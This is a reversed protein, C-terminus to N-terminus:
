TLPVEVLVETGHGPHSKVELRAAMQRARERMGLLGLHADGAVTSSLIDFGQGDDQVRLVVTKPQYDLEIRIAGARSHKVSNTIAEQGIRLLNAEVKAPLPREAGLIQWQVDVPQDAMLQRATESLASALNGNGLAASRLNMVSRRAETLSHRVMNLALNLHQQAQAPAETLKTAVAELQFAIGAFGQALTDHLDLAIRHREVLVLSFEARAQKMRHRHFSWAALTIAAGCLAYFWYTQYFHPALSFALSAGAMNWVGDNNCATVQFQYNGPPIKNYYAVRRTDAEVWDDDLGELKYKFRVKEPALFSLATYHFRFERAGPALRVPGRLDIKQGGAIVQEIVVPPPQTNRAINEPNIMVLGNVTPFWLKSDRSKWGAPQTGGECQSSKMGDAMGYPVCPLRPIRGRDYDEVDRISLSFVGRNCSMWLNQQDDELIQYIMNHFLGERTTYATLKGDKYRTLGGQTGFWLTGAADEHLCYSANHSLGDQTTFGAFTGDRYRCLGGNTCLWLNGERDQGIARILDSLLGDRKTFVQFVGDRYRGLGEGDGGIWLNGERDDFLARVGERFPFGQEETYNTFKGDKFRILGSPRDTGLWINGERDERLALVFNSLLGQETTYQTFKGDRFSNLGGGESGMWLTGDRGELVCKAFPNALGEKSSYSTFKGDRLRALGSRTGIWLSGERDEYLTEVFDHPLGDRSRYSDIKGHHLRSLGNWTGIWLNGDRDQSLARVKNDALGDGTTYRTFKGEHFRSLGGGISGVWLLGDRDAYVTRLGHHISGDKATYASFRGEAFSNLARSTGIWLRGQKDECVSWTRRGVLGNTSSYVSFHGDKFRALASWTAMWLAGQRDECIDLVGNSPLGDARTFCTFKGEHFRSLGGNFTGIWLRGARDAHLSRIDNSKLGPTNEANFVTFAVGDFRALGDRTGIWLYGDRTQTIAQVCGQPLGERETWVDQHYLTIAKAPDLAWSTQVASLVALWVALGILFTKARDNM